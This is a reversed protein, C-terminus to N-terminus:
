LHNCYVCCLPSQWTIDQIFVRCLWMYVYCVEVVDGGILNLGRCGRVLELAQTPTLGGVEPTGTFYCSM